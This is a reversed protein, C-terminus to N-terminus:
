SWIMAQAGVIDGDRFFCGEGRYIKNSRAASQNNKTRSALRARHKPRALKWQMKFRDGKRETIRMGRFGELGMWAEGCAKFFAEKATFLEAFETLGIKKSRKRESSNLFRRSIMERHRALFQKVRTRSVIDVGVGHLHASQHKVIRMAGKKNKRIRLAAPTKL